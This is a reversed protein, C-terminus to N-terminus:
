GARWRVGNPRSAHQGNQQQRVGVDRRGRAVAADNGRTALREVNGARAAREHDPRSRFAIRFRGRRHHERQVREPHVRLVHLRARRDAPRPRRRDGIKGSPCPGRRRFCPATTAPGRPRGRRDRGPRRRRSAATAPRSLSCRCPGPTRARTVGVAGPQGIHQRALPAGCHGATAIAAPRRPQWGDADFGTIMLWPTPSPVM